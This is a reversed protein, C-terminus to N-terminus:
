GADTPGEADSVDPLAGLLGVLVVLVRVGARREDATLSRALALLERATGIERRDFGEFLTSLDIRLGDVLKTLTDLSPSFSGHELRRITDASLDCREALQEQTDGRERRLTKVYRGFNRAAPSPPTRPTAM